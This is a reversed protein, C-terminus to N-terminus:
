SAVRAMRYPRDESATGKYAITGPVKTIRSANYVVTDIKVISNNFKVGLGKLLNKALTAHIRDNPLDNLRYYLHYGNGSMMKVPKEWGQKNLYDMTEEATIEAAELEIQDAPITSTLARDIDILLLSRCAIDEDSASYGAFSEKIPNMVIYINYGVKNLEIAQNEFALKMSNICDYEYSKFIRIFKKKHRLARMEITSNVDVKKFLWLKKIEEQDPFVNQTNCCSPNSKM